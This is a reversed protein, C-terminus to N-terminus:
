GRALWNWIHFAVAASVFGIALNSTLISLVLVMLAIVWDQVGRLDRALLM